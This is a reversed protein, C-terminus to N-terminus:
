KVKLYRLILIRGFTNENKFLHIPGFRSVCWKHIMDNEQSLKFNQFTPLRVQTIVFIFLLLDFLASREQRLQTIVFIFLLLDFLANREQRVQTIVFIFLLLDFLISPTTKVKEHDWFKLSYYLLTTKTIVMIYSVNCGM